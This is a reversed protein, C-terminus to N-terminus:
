KGTKVGVSYGEINFSEVCSDLDELTTFEMAEEKRNTYILEQTKPIYDKFYLAGFKILLM